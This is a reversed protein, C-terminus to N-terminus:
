NQAGEGLHTRMDARKWLHIKLSTPKNRKATASNIIHVMDHDAVGPAASCKDVLSPRNTFFLDLTARQRTTINVMQELGCNQTCDLLRHNIAIANYNGDIAHTTWNIDPLSLDGGVWGIM